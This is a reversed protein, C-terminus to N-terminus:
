VLNSGLANRVRDSQNATLTKTGGVIDFVDISFGATDLVSGLVRGRQVTPAGSGSASVTLTSGNTDVQTLALNGSSGQATSVTSENMYGGQVTTTGAGTGSHTFTCTPLNCDNMTFQGSNTARTFTGFNITTGNLQTGGSSNITIDPANFVNGDMGVSGSGSIMLEQGGAGSGNVNFMRCGNIAVSTGAAGTLKFRFGGGEGGMVNNAFSVTATSTADATFAGSQMTNTRFGFGGAPNGLMSATASGLTNGEIHTRAARSTVTSAVISNAVLTATADGASALDVTSNIVSNDTITGGAALFTNWGALTSDGIYNDNLKTGGLHWPFQGAVTVSDHVENNWNDTLTQIEGSGADIDYRGDWSTNDFTTQVKCDLSLRNGSMAHLEILTPSTNGATGITPGDTIVYHCETRLTGATRLALLAARTMPAPCPPTGAPTFSASTPM